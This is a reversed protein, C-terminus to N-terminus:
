GHAMSPNPATEGIGTASRVAYIFAEPDAPSVAVTRGPWRLVVANETGSLFAEFRGIRKSWFRGRISGLGGNGFVRVARKLVQPDRQVSVLGELPIRKRGLVLSNDVIRFGSVKSRELQFVVVLVFGAFLPSVVGVMMPHLGGSFFNGRLALVLDVIGVGAAIGLAVIVGRVLAAGMPASPFDQNVIVKAM